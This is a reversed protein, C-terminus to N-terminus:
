SKLYPSKLRAARATIDMAARACILEAPAGTKKCDTEARLLRTLAFDLRALPWRAAQAKFSDAEKWFLPPRLQRTAQDISQGQDSLSRVLHLRQFYRALSRLISIPSHADAWAKNLHADLTTLNGEAVSACLADLTLLSSDGICAQVDALTIVGGSSAGYLCLKCLEQETQQRSSGLHRVLWDRAVRDLTLGERELQRDIVQSLDRSDDRYCAVAATQDGQEMLKRLKSKKPLDGADLVLLADKACLTSLLPAITESLGDSAGRVRVVRRGGMMAIARLEDSLLAPDKKVEGADLDSVLFPDAVDGVVSGMVAKARTSVLGEDPGYLLVARIKDEQGAAQCFSDARKSDIKM